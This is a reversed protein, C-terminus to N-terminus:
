ELTIIPQGTRVSDGPKVLIEKVRGKRGARVELEMKMSELTIVVTSPEVVDGPKVLVKLVRGSIPASVAGGAVPQPSPAVPAARPPQPSPATPTPSPKPAQSPATGAAPTSPAQPVAPIEVEFERGNVVVRYRRGGLPTVRASYERDGLRVKVEVSSL